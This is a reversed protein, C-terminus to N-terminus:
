ATQRPPKMESFLITGGIVGLTPVLISVIPISLGISMAVGFGLALWFNRAIEVAAQRAGIARRTQPYSVFQYALLLWTVVLAGMNMIPVWSVSLCLLLGILSLLNKKLDIWLLKLEHKWGAPEPRALPPRLAQEAAQAVFDNVPLAAINAVWAFTFIMTVFFILQVIMRIAWQVADQLGSLTDRGMVGALWGQFQLAIWDRVPALVAGWLVSYVVISIVIPLLAWFFVRRNRLMLGLARAPTTFGFLFASIFSM